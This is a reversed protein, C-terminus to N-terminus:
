EGRLKAEAAENESQISLIEAIKRDRDSKRRLHHRRAREERLTRDLDSDSLLDLSVYTHAM